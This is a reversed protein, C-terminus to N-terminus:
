AVAAVLPAPQGVVLGTHTKTDSVIPSQATHHSLGIARASPCFDAVFVDLNASLYDRYGSLLARLLRNTAGPLCHTAEGADMIYLAFFNDLLPQVWATQDSQTHVAHATARVLRRFLAFQFQTGDNYPTVAIPTLDSQQFHRSLDNHDILGGYHALLNLGPALNLGDNQAQAEVTHAITLLDDQCDENAGGGTTKELESLLGPANQKVLSDLAHVNQGHQATTLIAHEMKELLLNGRVIVSSLGRVNGHNLLATAVHTNFRREIETTPQPRTDGAWPLEPLLAAHGPLALAREDSRSAVHAKALLQQISGDAPGVQEEKAQEMIDGFLARVVDMDLPNGAHVDNEKARLIEEAAGEALLRLIAESEHELTTNLQNVTTREEGTLRYPALDVSAEASLSGGCAGFTM